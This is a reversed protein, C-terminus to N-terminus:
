NTEQEKLDKDYYIKSIDTCNSYRSYDVIKARCILDRCLKMYDKVQEETPLGEEQCDWCHNRIAVLIDCIPCTGYDAYTIIVKQRDPYEYYDDEGDGFYEKIEKLGISYFYSSDSSYMSWGCAKTTEDWELDMEEDPTLINKIILDFLYDYDCVNIKKDKSIVEQLRLQNEDWKKILYKEM